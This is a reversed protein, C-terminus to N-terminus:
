KKLDNRLTLSAATLSALGYPPFSMSPSNSLPSGNSQGSLLTMGCLIGFDREVDGSTTLSVVSSLCSLTTCCRLRRVRPDRLVQARSRDVM